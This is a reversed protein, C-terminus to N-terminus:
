YLLSMMLLAAFTTEFQSSSQSCKRVIKLMTPTSADVSCVVGGRMQNWSSPLAYFIEPLGSRWPARSPCGEVQFACLETGNM